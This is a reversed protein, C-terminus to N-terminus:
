LIGVGDFKKVDPVKRSAIGSGEMTTGPVPNIIEGAEEFVEKACGELGGLVEDMLAQLAVARERMRRRVLGELLRKTEERVSDLKEIM